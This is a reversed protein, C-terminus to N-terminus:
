LWGISITHSMLKYVRVNVYLFLFHPNNNTVIYAVSGQGLVHTPISTLFVVCVEKERLLSYCCGTQGARATRGARHVYTKIYAPMDYNIVNKVGEVDM